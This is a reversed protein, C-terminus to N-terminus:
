YPKGVVGRNCIQKTLTYLFLKQIKAYIVMSTYM